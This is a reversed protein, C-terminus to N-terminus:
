EARLVVLPDAQTARRAPVYCAIASVATLVLSAGAFTVPDRAPVEFLLAAMFSTLWFAGLLGLSVGTIAQLMGERVILRRLAGADAGLAVRIGMERSRRTVSFSLVGFVGVAAMVLAIAAFITLLLMSSRAPALSARRVDTMTRVMTVPLAPDIRSIQHRAAAALTSPTGDTRLLFTFSTASPMLSQTGYVSETIGSDLGALKVDRVVGVITAREFLKNDPAGLYIESGIPDRGGSEPWFRRALSESIVVSPTGALGDQDTLFRGRVLAMGLARFYDPTIVRYPIGPPTQGPPLPRDLINFWASNGRATLPVSTGAAVVKAGPLAQLQAIAQRVFAVRHPGQPYTGEPLNVNFLLMGDAIFGPDVQQLAQFSRLLLGAGSLVVLAIAVEAVVLAPRLRSRGIRTSDGEKIASGPASRSLQIAPALGFFVSAVIGVGLTFLLVPLNM